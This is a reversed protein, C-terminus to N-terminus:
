VGKASKQTDLSTTALLVDERTTFGLTGVSETEDELTDLPEKLGTKV